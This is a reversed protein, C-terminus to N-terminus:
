QPLYHATIRDITGDKLMEQLATNIAPMKNVFPSKRSIGIYLLISDDPKFSQKQIKNTLNLVNLDYEVQCDTGIITDVRGALLIRILQEESNVPYKNLKQDEDFQKFYASKRAYGITKKQLDVYKEIHITREKLSYFAPRCTYYPIGSYLIYKARDATKAIGTMIDSQGEKM